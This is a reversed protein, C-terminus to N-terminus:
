TVNRTATSETRDAPIGVVRATPDDDPHPRRERPHRPYPAADGTSSAESAEEAKANSPEKVQTAM